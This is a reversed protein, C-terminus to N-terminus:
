ETVEKKSFIGYVTAILMLFMGIPIAAYVVGMPARLVPSTQRMVKMCLEAGYYCVVGQYIVLCINAIWRVIKGITSPLSDVFVSIGLHSNNRSCIYGGIYSIWIFGYRSFEESWSLPKSIFFRFFIQLVVTVIIAVLLAILILNVLADIIRIVKKM